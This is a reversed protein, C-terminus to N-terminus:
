GPPSVVSLQIPRHAEFSDSFSAKLLLLTQLTGKGSGALRFASISRIIGFVDHSIITSIKGVTPDPRHLTLRSGSGTLIQQEKNGMFQGVIAHTIATPSQVTLHYMFM